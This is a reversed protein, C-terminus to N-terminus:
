STQPESASDYSFFLPILGTWLVIAISGIAPLFLNSQIWPGPQFADGLSYTWVLFSASTVLLQGAGRIGQVFYLYVPILIVFAVIVCVLVPQRLSPEDAVLQSVAVYLGIFEAPILKLLRDQYNSDKNLQRSM